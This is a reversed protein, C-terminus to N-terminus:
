HHVSHQNSSQPLTYQAHRFRERAILGPEGKIAEFPSLSKCPYIERQRTSSNYDRGQQLKNVKDKLSPQRQPPNGLGTPTMPTPDGTSSFMADVTPFSMLYHHQNVEGM